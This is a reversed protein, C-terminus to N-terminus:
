ELTRLELNDFIVEAPVDSSIALMGYRASGTNTPIEVNALPQGNAILQVQSGQMRVVLRNQVDSGNIIASSEGEALVTTNGAIRQELQYSSESPNITFGLFNQDDLYRLLLGGSGSIVQVDVGISVDRPANTRFSWINGIGPDVSIRYQSDLYGIRWGFGSLNAWEASDFGDAM